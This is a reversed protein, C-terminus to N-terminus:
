KKNGGNLVFSCKGKAGYNYLDDAWDNAVETRLNEIEREEYKQGEKIAEKVDDYRNSSRCIRRFHDRVRQRDRDSNSGSLFMCHRGRYHLVNKRAARDFYIEVRTGAVKSFKESLGVNKTLYKGIDLKRELEEQQSQTLHSWEKRM